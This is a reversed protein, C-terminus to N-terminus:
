YDTKSEQYSEGTAPRRKFRGTSANGIEEITEGTKKLSSEILDLKSFLRQLELSFAQKLDKIDSQVQAFQAASPSNSEPSQEVIDAELPNSFLSETRQQTNFKMIGTGISAPSDTVGLGVLYASNTDAFNPEIEISLHVKEGARVMSILESKPEIKVYLALRGAMAGSGIRGAKVEVVDGLAKFLGGPVVGRMHEPWIRANYVDQSYATAIQEIALEPIERGDVTSGAVAARIWDTKLKSV